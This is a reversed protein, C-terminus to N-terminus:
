LFVLQEEEGPCAGTRIPQGELDLLGLFTRDHNEAVFLAQAIVDWPRSETQVGDGLIPADLACLLPCSTEPGFRSNCCVPGAHRTVSPRRALCIRSSCSEQREGAPRDGRRMPSWPTTPDSLLGSCKADPLSTIM